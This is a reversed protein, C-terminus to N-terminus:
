VFPNFEVRSRHGGESRVLAVSAACSATLVTSGPSSAPALTVEASLLSSAAQPQSSQLRPLISVTQTSFIQAGASPSRPDQFARSKVGGVHSM